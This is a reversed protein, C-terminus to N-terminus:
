TQIIKVPMLNCYSYRYCKECQDITVWKQLTPHRCFFYYNTQTPKVGTLFFSIINRLTQSLNKGALGTEEAKALIEKLKSERMKFCVTKM